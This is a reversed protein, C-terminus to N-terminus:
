RFQGEPAGKLQSPAGSSDSAHCVRCGRFGLGLSGLFGCDRVFGSACGVQRERARREAWRLRLTAEFSTAHQRLHPPNPNRVLEQNLARRTRLSLPKLSLPLVSALPHLARQLPIRRCSPQPCGYSHFEPFRARRIIGCPKFSNPVPEVAPEPNPHNPNPTQKQM